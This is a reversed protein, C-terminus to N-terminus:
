YLWLGGLVNRGIDDCGNTFASVGAGTSKALLALSYLNKGQTTNPNIAYWTAGDTCADSGIWPNFAVYIRDGQATSVLQIQGVQTNVWPGAYGTATVVLFAALVSARRRRLRFKFTM